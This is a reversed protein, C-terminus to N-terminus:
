NLGGSTPTVKVIGSFYEGREGGHCDDLLKAERLFYVPNMQESSIGSVDDRHVFRICQLLIKIQWSEDDM